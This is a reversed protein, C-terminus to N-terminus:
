KAKKNDDPLNTVELRKLIENFDVKGSLDDFQSRYTQIVSVGLIDVDYILFDNDKAKYFKFVLSYTDAGSIIAANVFYRSPNPITADKIVIQENTYLSLKDTFSKKLRAEFTKTFKAREEDNLAKYHKSLALKAMLTYDFYSDFMDFLKNSKQMDNLSKDSVISIATKLNEKMVPEISALELGFSLSFISLFLILKKM